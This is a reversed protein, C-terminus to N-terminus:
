LKKLKNLADDANEAPEALDVLFNVKGESVELMGSGVVFFIEHEEKVKLVGPLTAALLPAHNALVGFSGNAGPAVLSEIENEYVNGKPTLISLNFKPM